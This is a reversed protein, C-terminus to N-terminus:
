EKYYRGRPILVAILLLTAGIMAIDPLRGKYIRYDINSIVLMVIIGLIAYKLQKAAYFYSNGETRLSYPASASLVMVLGFALLVLVTILLGYDLPKRKNRKVDSTIEKKDM